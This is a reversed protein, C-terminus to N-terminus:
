LNFSFLSNLVYDLNFNWSDVSLERKVMWYAVQNAPRRIVAFILSAKSSLARINSVVVRIKWLPAGDVDICWSVMSSNDSEICASSTDAKSM